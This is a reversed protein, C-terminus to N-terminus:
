LSGGLALGTAIAVILYPAFAIPGRRRRLMALAFSLLSVVAFLLSALEIGIVAGGLAALEVDGWGMGRGRSLWAMIAFPVALVAAALPVSWQGRILAGSVVAGLPALTFVDFIVGRTVDTAWSASLAFVLIAVFGIEAVPAGRWGLVAGLAGGGLALLMGPAQASPPGGSHPPMGRTAQLGLWSGSYAAVACVVVGLPGALATM